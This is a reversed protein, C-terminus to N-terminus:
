DLCILTNERECQMNVSQERSKLNSWHCCVFNQWIRKGFPSITVSHRKLCYLIKVTVVNAWRKLVYNLHITTPICTFSNLDAATSCSLCCSFLSMELLFFPEHSQNSLCGCSHNFLTSHETSMYIHHPLQLPLHSLYFFFVQSPIYTIHSSTIFLKSWECTLAHMLRQLYNHFYM